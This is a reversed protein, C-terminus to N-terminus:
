FKKVVDYENLVRHSIYKSLMSVNKRNQPGFDYNRDKSYSSLDKDIYENLENLATDYYNDM